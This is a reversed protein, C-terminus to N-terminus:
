KWRMSKRRMGIAGNDLIEEDELMDILRFIASGFASPFVGQAQRVSNEVIREDDM